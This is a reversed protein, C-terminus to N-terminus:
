RLENSIIEKITNIEYLIESNKTSEKPVSKVIEEYSKLIFKLYLKYDNNLLVNIGYKLSIEDYKKKGKIFVMIPYFKGKDYVFEEKDIIFGLNIISKRLIYFDNNPSIILKKVNKLRVKDQYLINIITTAGMGSIIVTDTKNDITSIGDGLKIEVNKANYIEINKKAQLLPGENIDSAIVSLNKKNKELYISLLAHDCGVDIINSCDDVYCAIHQLRKNIKM